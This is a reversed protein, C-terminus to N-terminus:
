NGYNGGYYQQEQQNDNGGDANEADQYYDNYFYGDEQYNGDGNEYNYGNGDFYADYTNQGSYADVVYDGEYETTSVSEDLYEDAQSELRLGRLSKPKYEPKFM